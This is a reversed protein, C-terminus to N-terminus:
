AKMQHIWTDTGPHSRRVKLDFLGQLQATPKHTAAMDVTVTGINTSPTCGLFLMVIFCAQQIPKGTVQTSDYLDSTFDDGNPIWRGVLTRKEVTQAM